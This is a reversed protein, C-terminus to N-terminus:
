SPLRQVTDTSLLARLISHMVSKVNATVSTSRYYYWFLNCCHRCAYRALEEQVAALRKNVTHLEVELAAREDSLTCASATASKAADVQTILSAQISKLRSTAGRRASTLMCQWVRQM